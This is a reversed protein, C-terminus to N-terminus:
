TMSRPRARTGFADDVEEPTSQASERDDSATEDEVKIEDGAGIQATWRTSPEFPNFLPLTALHPQWPKKRNM